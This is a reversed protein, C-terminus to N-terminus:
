KDCRSRLQLLLIFPSTTIAQNGIEVEQDNPVLYANTDKGVCISVQDNPVLNIGESKRNARPAITTSIMMENQRQTEQDNSTTEAVIWLKGVIHMYGCKWVSNM